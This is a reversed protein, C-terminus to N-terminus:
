LACCRALALLCFRWPRGGAFRQSRLGGRGCRGPVISTLFFTPSLIAPAARRRQRRWGNLSGETALRKAYRGGSFHGKALSTVVASSARNQLLIYAGSFVFTRGDRCAGNKM